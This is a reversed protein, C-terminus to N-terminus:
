APGVPLREVVRDALLVGLLSELGQDAPEVLVAEGGRGSAQGVVQVREDHV